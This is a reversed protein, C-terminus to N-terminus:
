MSVYQFKVKRELNGLKKDSRFQTPVTYHIRIRDSGFNNASDPDLIIIKPDTDELEL